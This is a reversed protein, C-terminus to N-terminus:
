RFKSNRRYYVGFEIGYFGWLDIVKMILNMQRYINNDFNYNIGIIYVIKVM